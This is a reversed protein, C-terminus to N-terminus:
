SLRLRKELLAELHSTQKDLASSVDNRIQGQLSGISGSLKETAATTQALQTSLQGITNDQQVMRQTMLTM